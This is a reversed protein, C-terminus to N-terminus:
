HYGSAIGSCRWAIGPTNTTGAAMDMVNARTTATATIITAAAPFKLLTLTPSRSTRADGRLSGLWCGLELKRDHCGRRPQERCDPGGNFAALDKVLAM